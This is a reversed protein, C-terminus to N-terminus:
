LGKGAMLGSSFYLKEWWHNQHLEAKRHPERPISGLFAVYFANAGAGANKTTPQARYLVFLTLDRWIRELCM